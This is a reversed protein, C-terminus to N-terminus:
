DARVAACHRRRVRIVSCDLDASPRHAHNFRPACPRRSRSRRLRRCNRSNSLKRSRCPRRRRPWPRARWPSSPASRAFIMRIIILIPIKRRSSSNPLNYRHRRRRRSRTSTASRCRSSSPSRWCRSGHALSSTRGYRNCSVVGWTPVRVGGAPVSTVVYCRLCRAHM